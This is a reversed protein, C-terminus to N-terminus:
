FFSVSSDTQLAPFSIGLYFATSMHVSPSTPCPFFYCHCIDVVVHSVSVSRSAAMCCLSSVEVGTIVQLPPLSARSLLCAHMCVASESQQVASVFPLMAFCNHDLLLLLFCNAEFVLIWQRMIRSALLRFDLLLCPQNRMLDTHLVQGLCREWNGTTHPGDETNSPKYFCCGLTHRWTWRCEGQTYM